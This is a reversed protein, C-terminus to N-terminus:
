SVGEKDLFNNVVQKNTESNLNVEMLKSAALIALDVVQRRVEKLMIEREREIDKKAELIINQAEKKTKQLIEDSEKQAKIKANKIIVEVDKEANKLQEQYKMKSKKADNQMRKADDLQTKVTTARDDMIKMVPKFLLKKLILYMVFLNVMAWIFTPGLNFM